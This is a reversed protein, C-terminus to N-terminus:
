ASGPCRNRLQKSYASDISSQRRRHREELQAMIEDYTVNARPLIVRLVEVVDHCSLLSLDQKHERRMEFMFLMALMVMTMHHHWGQWKRLQYGAMGVESKANRLAHEVWYREGQMFALREITTSEPANSVSYKIKGRSGIERRAILHWCRAVSEKGDWLWVRHHCVEVTLTGKTSDRLAVQKWETEPQAAVWRDVRTSATQAVRRKPSRGKPSTREPVIPCPDEPYILQDCHVDAVWTEGDGDLTRLLWPEKGYGGDFSVWRYRIGRQRAHRIMELALQAKTRFIREEQPIGARDCRRPSEIWEQPLYLREDTLTIDGGCGLGAFVGVQCNDVKGLRGNWQRAVGVSKDGKKAIASEDVVLFRDQAEGFAADVDHAVQDLVARHSWPSESVFHQYSQDNIDPVVEAMREMNRKESQILGFLYKRSQENVNRTRSSFFSCFRAHFVCLGDGTGQLIKGYRCCEGPIAAKQRRDSTDNTAQEVPRLVNM